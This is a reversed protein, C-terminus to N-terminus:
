AQEFIAVKTGKAHCSAAAVLGALGGGAILVRLPEDETIERGGRPIAADERWWASEDAEGTSMGRLTRADMAAEEFRSRIRETRESSEAERKPAGTQDLVARVHPPMNVRNSPNGDGDALWDFQPLETKLKRILSAPGFSEAQQGM